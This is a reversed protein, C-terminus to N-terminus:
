SSKMHYVFVVAAYGQLTICPPILESLYPRACTDLVCGDDKVWGRDVGCLFFYKTSGCKGLTEGLDKLYWKAFKSMYIKGWENSCFLQPENMISSFCRHADLRAISEWTSEPNKKELIEQSKDRDIRRDVLILKM